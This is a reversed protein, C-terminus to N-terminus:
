FRVLKVLVLQLTISITFFGGALAPSTLSLSKIGLDPLDGPSLIAVWELIRAQLVGHLSSCVVSPPTAFLQVHSFRSLVCACKYVKNWFKWKSKFYRKRNWEVSFPRWFRPLCIMLYFCTAQYKFILDSVKLSKSSFMPLISKSMFQVLIRKSWSGLTISTFVIIFLHSRIFNLLKQMAFLIIFLIFLCMESHFFIITFSVVSM